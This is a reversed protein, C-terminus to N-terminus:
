PADAPIPNCAEIAAAHDFDGKLHEYIDRYVHYTESYKEHNAQNPDFRRGIRVMELLSKRVDA